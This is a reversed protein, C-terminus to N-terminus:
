FQLKLCVLKCITVMLGYYCFQLYFKWKRDKWEVAFLSHIFMISTSYDPNGRM